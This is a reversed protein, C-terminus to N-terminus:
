GKLTASVFELAAMRSPAYAAEGKLIYERLEAETGSFCGCFYRAEGNIVVGLLIRGIEGHSFWGCVAWRIGTSEALNANLM